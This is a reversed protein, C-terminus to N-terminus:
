GRDPDQVGSPFTPVSFRVVLSRDRGDSVSPVFPVSLKSSRGHGVSHHGRGSTWETRGRDVGTRSFSRGESEM